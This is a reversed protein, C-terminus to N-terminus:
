NSMPDFVDRLADGVINLGLVTLIVFVGPFVVMWWANFIVTKAEFLINGLSPAPAPVGAGMFSLAAEILISSAFAFTAQVIIPSIINPAIHKFIIRPWTAGEAQIAEIYTQERIALTSSRAAMVIMPTYVMTMSIIVNETNIGLITVLAVAMLLAPVSMFMECLRMIITDLKSFYGAILGIITGLVSSIVATVLGVVVSTRTGYVIRSFLDRGMTDTGFIHKASPAQLREAVNLELPDATALVPALVAVLFIFITICLGIIASKRKLFNKIVLKRYEWLQQKNVKETENM